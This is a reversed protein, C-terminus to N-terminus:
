GIQDLEGAGEVAARGDRMHGSDVVAPQVSADTTLGPECCHRSQRPRAEGPLRMTPCPPFRHNPHKLDDDSHPADIEHQLGDGDRLCSEGHTGLVAASCVKIRHRGHDNPYAASRQKQSQHEVMGLDDGPDSGGRVLRELFTQYFRAGGIDPTAGRSACAM